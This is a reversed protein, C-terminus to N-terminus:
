EDDKAGGIPDAPDHGLIGDADPMGRRRQSRHPWAAAVAAIAAPAFTWVLGPTNLLIVTSGGSSGPLLLLADAAVVGVGAAVAYWRVPFALRLAALFVAVMLLSLVLGIPLGKGTAASIGFQHKFTGITGVVLGTILSAPVGFVLERRRIPEPTAETM